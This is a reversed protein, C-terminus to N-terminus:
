VCGAEVRGARARADGALAETETGVADRDAADLLPLNIKVNWAAARAAAEAAVAAVALDSRLHPNIRGLLDEFLRLLDCAAALTARPVAMADAVAARWGEVRVPDNEPLKMLTNLVTYAAADEDALALFLGRARELRQAAQELFAQHEALAKRGLSYAVVMGGTAAGTAGLMGAAAGGGPAPTKSALAALLNEFPMPGIADPMGLRLRPSVAREDM